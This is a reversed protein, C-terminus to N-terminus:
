VGISNIESGEYGKFGSIAYGAPAIFSKGKCDGRGFTAVNNIKANTVLEICNIRNQRCTSHKWQKHSMSFPKKTCKPGQSLSKVHTFGQM